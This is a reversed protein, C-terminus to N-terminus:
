TSGGRGLGLVQLCHELFSLKNQLLLAESAATFHFSIMPLPPNNGKRRQPEFELHGLSVAGRLDKSDNVLTRWCCGAHSQPLPSGLVM